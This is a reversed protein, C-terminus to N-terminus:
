TKPNPEPYVDSHKHRCQFKIQSNEHDSPFVKGPKNVCRPYGGYKSKSITSVAGTDKVIQYTMAVALPLHHPTARKPMNAGASIIGQDSTQASECACPCSPCYNNVVNVHQIIQWDIHWIFFYGVLPTKIAATLVSVGDSNLASQTPLWTTKTGM